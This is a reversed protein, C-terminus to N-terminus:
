FFNEHWYRVPISQLIDTTGRHKKTLNNEIEIQISDPIAGWWKSPGQQVTSEIVKSLDSSYQILSDSMLKIGLWYMLIRIEQYTLHGYNKLKAVSVIPGADIEESMFHLTCGVEDKNHLAWEVCCSGRYKPLIGPHSNLIGLHFANLFTLPLKCHTGLNIGYSLNADRIKKISNIDSHSDLRIIRLDTESITTKSMTKSYFSNTRNEFRVLDTDRNGLQAELLVFEISEDLGFTNRYLNFVSRLPSNALCVVGVRVKQEM